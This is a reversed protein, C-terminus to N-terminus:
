QRCKECKLYHEEYTRHCFRLITTDTFNDKYGVHTSFVGLFSVEVHSGNYVYETKVREAEDWSDVYFCMTHPSQVVNDFLKFTERTYTPSEDLLEKLLADAQGSPLFNHIISCPTYAEIDEPSFLHLTKGKRTLPRRSGPKPQSSNSNGLAFSSISSQYGPGNTGSTSKQVPLPAALNLILSKSAEDVSGESRLLAELLEEQPIDSHLSLLIALKVDTSEEEVQLEKQRVNARKAGNPSSSRRRKRSVFAEM